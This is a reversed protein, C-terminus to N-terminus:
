WHCSRVCFHFEIEVAVIKMSGMIVYVVRFWITASSGM